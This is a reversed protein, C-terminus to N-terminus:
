GAGELLAVPQRRFPPYWRRALFIDAAQASEPSFSAFLFLDGQAEEKAAALEAETWRLLDLLRREGATTAVVVTLSTTEFAEQYPGDAYAIL